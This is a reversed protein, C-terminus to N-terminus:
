LVRISRCPVAGFLSLQKIILDSNEYTNRSKDPNRSLITRINQVGDHTLFGVSNFMGYILFRATYM